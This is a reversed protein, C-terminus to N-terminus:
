RVQDLLEAGQTVVRVGSGIGSLILVNEGDLPATRVPRAVFREANVHEFVADQGNAIRVVSSRPVVVGKEEENTAAQVLVFQGVRLGAVEGTIAFQIPVSQNRDAFGSGQYDLTLVQGESTRASAKKASGLAHFSLAEIWLKAPDVIHYIVM